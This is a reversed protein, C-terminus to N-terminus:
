NQLSPNDLRLCSLDIKQSDYKIMVTKLALSYNPRTSRYREEYYHRLVQMSPGTM